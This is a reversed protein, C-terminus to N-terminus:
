WWGTVEFLEYQLSSNDTTSFAEIDVVTGATNNEVTVVIPRIYRVEAAFSIALFPMYFECLMYSIPKGYIHGGGGGGGGGM